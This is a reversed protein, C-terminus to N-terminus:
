PPRGALPGPVPPDGGRAMAPRRILERPRVATAVGNKPLEPLFEVYRPQKFRALQARCAEDIEGASMEVGARAAVFVAVAEGWRDDPVGVACAEQVGPLATVVNEVEGPYVNEGGSIILDRARDVVHLRGDADLRGIDGTRFWGDAFVEATMEPKDLYGDALVLSRIEVEGLVDAGVACRDGPSVIRIQSGPAPRGCSSPAAVADEGVCWAVCAGETLGYIGGVPIPLWRSLREVTGARIPSGGWVAYRLRDPRFQEYDPEAMLMEWMTPALGTHTVGYACLDQLVMRADFERHLVLRAGVLWAPVALGYFAASNMPFAYLYTDSPLVPAVALSTWAMYLNSRHSRVVGKPTGSTGSTYHIAQTDDEAVQPLGADDAPMGETLSDMAPRGDVVGGARVVDVALDGVSAAALESLAADHLLIRPRADALIRAIEPGALRRNVPLVVLGLKAAAVFVVVHDLGNYMLTAVRDGSVAGQAGLAHACRTSRADLERFTYSRGDAILAVRDGHVDAGRRMVEGLTSTQV